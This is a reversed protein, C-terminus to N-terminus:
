KPLMNFILGGNTNLPDQPLKMQTKTKFQEACRQEKDIVMLDSQKM